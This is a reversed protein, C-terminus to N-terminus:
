NDVIVELWLVQLLFAWTLTALNSVGVTENLVSFKSPPM